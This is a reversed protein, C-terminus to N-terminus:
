SLVMIISCCLKCIKESLVNMQASFRDRGRTTLYVLSWRRVHTKSSYKNHLLYQTCNQIKLVCEPSKIEGRKKMISIGAFRETIFLTNQWFFLKEKQKSQNEKQLSCASVVTDVIHRQETQIM